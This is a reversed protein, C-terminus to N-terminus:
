SPSCRHRSSRACNFPCPCCLPDAHAPHASTSGLATRVLLRAPQVEISVETAHGPWDEASEDWTRLHVVTQAPESDGAHARASLGHGADLVSMLAVPPSHAGERAEVVLSGVSGDFAVTALRVTAAARAALLQVSCIAMELHDVGPPPPAEHLHVHLGDARLTVALIAKEVLAGGSPVVTWSHAAQLQSVDGAPPPLSPAPSPVSVAHRSSADTAATAATVEALSRMILYHLQVGVAGLNQVAAACAHFHVPRLALDFALQSTAARFSPSGPSVLLATVSLAEGGDSVHPGRRASASMESTANCLVAAGDVVPEAYKEADGAELLVTQLPTESCDIAGDLRLSTLAVTVHVDRERYRLRLRTRGSRLSIVEAPGDSSKVSPSAPGSPEVQAPSVAGVPRALSVTVRPLEVSLALQTQDFMGKASIRRASASIPAAIAAAPSALSACAAMWLSAETRSSAVLQVSSSYTLGLAAASFHVELVNPATGSLVHAGDLAVTHRVAPGDARQHEYVLAGYQLSAWCVGLSNFQEKGQISRRETVRLWGCRGREGADDVAAQAGAAEICAATTAVLAAATAVHAAQVSLELPECVAAVSVLPVESTRADLLVAVHMEVGTPALQWEEPESTAGSGLWRQLPAAPPFSVRVAAVRLAFGQEGSDAPSSSISLGDAVVLTSALADLTAAAEQRVAPPAQLWLLRLPAVGVQVELPRRRWRESAESRISEVADAIAGRTQRQLALAAQWQSSPLTFFTVAAALLRPNLLIHLQLIATLLPVDPPPPPNDWFPARMSNRPRPHSHPHPHPSPSPPIPIPPHPHSRTQPNRPSPVSSSATRTELRHSTCPGARQPAAAARVQRVDCSLKLAAASQLPETSASLAFWPEKGETDGGLESSLVTRLEPWPTAAHVVSVAGVRLTVDLGSRVPRVAATAVLGSLAAQVLPARREDVLEAAIAAVTLKAEMEVYSDRVNWGRTPAPPSAIIEEALKQTELESIGILDFPTSRKPPLLAASALRCMRAVPNASSDDGSTAPPLPQWWRTSRLRASIARALSRYQLITPLPLSAELAELRERERSSDLM